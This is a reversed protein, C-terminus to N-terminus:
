NERILMMSMLNLAENGRNVAEQLDQSESTILAENDAYNLKHEKNKNICLKIFCSDVTEDGNAFFKKRRTEIHM